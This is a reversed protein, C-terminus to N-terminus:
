LTEKQQQHAPRYDFFTVPKRRDSRVTKRMIEEPSCLTVALRVRTLAAIRASIQEATLAPDSCGVVVKVEDALDHMSYVEIYHGQVAAISHLAHAITAPFL